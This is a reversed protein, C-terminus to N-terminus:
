LLGPTLRWLALNLASAFSVWLLYPILLAGAWPTIRWFAVLTALILAWLVLVEGFAVAGLHWGFFLWSWLANLALQIIFLGLAATAGAFGRRRWALWAAIGMLCYLGTWVPGFVEAPPAWDTKVLQAYFKGANVSALGGIAGTAVCVLLWALLGGL